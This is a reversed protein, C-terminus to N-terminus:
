DLTIEDIRLDVASCCFCDGAERSHPCTPKKSYFNVSSRVETLLGLLTAPEPTTPTDLTAEFSSLLASSTSYTYALSFSNEQGVIAGAFSDGDDDFYIVPTTSL